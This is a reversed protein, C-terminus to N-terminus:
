IFGQLGNHTVNGYADYAFTRANAGTISTLRNLSTNYNYTMTQGGETKSKINRSPSAEQRWRM